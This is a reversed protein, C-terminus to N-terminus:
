WICTWRRTNANFYKAYEGHLNEMFVSIKNLRDFIFLHVHWEMLAYAIVDIAFKKSFRKLFELYSKYHHEFKFVPYRDNGWVYIHHYLNEGCFRPHWAM